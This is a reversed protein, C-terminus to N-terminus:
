LRLIPLDGCIKRALFENVKRHRPCPLIQEAQSKCIHDPGQRLLECGNQELDRVLDIRKM